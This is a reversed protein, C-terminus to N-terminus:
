GTTSHQTQSKTKTYRAADVVTYAPLFLRRRWPEAGRVAIITSM